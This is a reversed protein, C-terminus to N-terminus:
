KTQQQTEMTPSIIPEMKKIEAEKMLIYSERIPLKVNLCLPNTKEARIAENEILHLEDINRCPCSKVLEIQVKDWRGEFRKYVRRTPNGKADHKHKAKRLALSEITTGYYFYGEDDFLRYLKSKSYDPPM